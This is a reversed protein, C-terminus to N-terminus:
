WTPWLFVRRNEKVLYVGGHHAETDTRHSKLDVAVDDLRASLNKEVTNIKLVLSSEVRDLKESLMQHGEAVLALKHDINEAMIGIYQQFQETQKVFLDEM